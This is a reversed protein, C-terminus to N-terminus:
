GSPSHGRKKNGERRATHLVHAYFLRPPPAGVSFFKEAMTTDTTAFYTCAYLCNPNLAISVFIYVTLARNTRNQRSSSRSLVRVLM